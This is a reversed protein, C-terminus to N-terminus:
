PTSRCPRPERSGPRARPRQRGPVARPGACGDPGDADGADLAAKGTRVATTFDQPAPPQTPPATDAAPGAQLAFSAVLAAATILTNM